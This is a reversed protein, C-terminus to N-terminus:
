NSSDSAHTLIYVSFSYYRGAMRRVLSDSYVFIQQIFSFGSFIARVDFWNLTPM